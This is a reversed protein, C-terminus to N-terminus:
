EDFYNEVTKLKDISANRNRKTLYLLIFYIIYKVKISSSIEFILIGRVYIKFFLASTKVIDITTIKMVDVASQPQLIKNSIYIQIDVYEFGETSKSYEGASSNYKISTLPIDDNKEIFFDIGDYIEPNNFLFDNIITGSNYINFKNLEPYYNDIFNRDITHIKTM